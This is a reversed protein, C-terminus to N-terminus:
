TMTLLYCVKFPANVVPRLFQTGEDFCLCEPSVIEAIDPEKKDNTAYIQQKFSNSKVRFSATEAMNRM